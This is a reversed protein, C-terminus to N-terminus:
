HDDCVTSLHLSTGTGHRLIRHRIDSLHKTCISDSKFRLCLFPRRDPSWKLNSPYLEQPTKLKMFTKALKIDVNKMSFIRILRVFLHCTTKFFYCCFIHGTVYFTSFEKSFFIIFFQIIFAVSIGNIHDTLFCSGRFYSFTSPETKKHLKIKFFM